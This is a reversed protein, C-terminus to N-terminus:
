RDLERESFGEAKRSSIKFKLPRCIRNYNARLRKMEAGTFVPFDSPLKAKYYKKATTKVAKKM